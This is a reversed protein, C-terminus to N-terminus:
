AWKYKTGDGYKKSWYVNSVSTALSVGTTKIEWFIACCILAIYARPQPITVARALLDALAKTIGSLPRLVSSLNGRLGGEVPRPGQVVAKFAWTQILCQSAPDIWNTSLTEAELPIGVRSWLAPLYTSM